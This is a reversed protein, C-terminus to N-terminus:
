PTLDFGNSIDGGLYDSIRGIAAWIAGRFLELPSSAEHPRRVLEAGTAGRRGMSDEERRRPRHGARSRQDRQSAVDIVAPLHVFGQAMPIYTTDLAWVQNACAVNVGRLLHPHIAHGPHKISTGHKQYLATNGMRRMVALEAPDLPAAVYYVAGRSIGVLEAERKIPLAHHRDIM